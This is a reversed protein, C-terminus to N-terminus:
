CDGQCQYEGMIEINRFENVANREYCEIFESCEEKELCIGQTGTYTREDGIGEKDVCRQIYKDKELIGKMTNKNPYEKDTCQSLRDYIKECLPRKGERYKKIEKKICKIQDGCTKENACPSIKYNICRESFFTVPDEEPNGTPWARWLIFIEDEEPLDKVCETMTKSFESCIQAIDKKTKAESPPNKTAIAIVKKLIGSANVTESPGYYKFSLEGSALVELIVSGENICNEIGHTLKEKFMVKKTTRFIPKWEGGCNLSPYEIHYKSESQNISLRIPWETKNDDQSGIGEWDGDLWENTEIKQELSTGNSSIKPGCGALFAISAFAAISKIYHFTNYKISIQCFM